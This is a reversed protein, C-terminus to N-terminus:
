AKGLLKWVFSVRHFGPLNTGADDHKAPHFNYAYEIGFGGLRFTFGAAMLPILRKNDFAKLYVFNGGFFPELKIFLLSIQNYLRIGTQFLMFDTKLIKDAFAWSFVNFHMDLFIGPVVIHPILTYQVGGGASVSSLVFALLANGFLLLEAEEKSSGSYYNLMAGFFPFSYGIRFMGSLNDTAKKEAGSEQAHMAVTVSLALLVALFIKKV